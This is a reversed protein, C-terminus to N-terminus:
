DAQVLVERVAAEIKNKNLHNEEDHLLFTDMAAEGLTAIKAHQLRLNLKSFLCSLEALLGLRDRTKIEVQYFHEASRTVKVDTPTDFVDQHLGHRKQTPHPVDLHALTQTISQTISNLLDKNKITLHKHDLLIFYLLLHADGQRFLRAEAVNIGLAELTIACNALIYRADKLYVLLECQGHEPHLRTQVLAGEAQAAYLNRQYSIDGVSFYHFYDPAWFQTPLVAIRKAREDTDASDNFYHTTAQYLQELLTAKWGNWLDINTGRIDAVTLVYLHDLYQQSGIRKAFRKIVTPDAIDMKQATLSMTLHHEILWSILKIDERPLSHKKGFRKVAKAGWVSHDVGRGKGLDHFLAAVYLCYPQELNQMLHIALPLTDKHKGHKFERLQRIVQSTHKDVTHTHFLDFQMQGMIVEFDPLYRALIGYDMMRSLSHWISHPSKLIDVFLAQNAKNCRFDDDILDLHHSLSRLTRPHLNRHKAHQGVHYFVEFIASPRQTFLGPDLIDLQGNIMTFDDSVQEIHQPKDQTLQAEFISFMLECLNNLARTHLYFDQMFYEVAMKKHDDEYGLQEALTKQVDFRLRNEDKGSLQHLAIRVRGLFFVSERVTRYEKHTILHQNRLSSLDKQELAGIIIWRMTDFDRLGGPCEKINPELNRHQAEHRKLYEEQKANFFDKHPWLKAQKINAMLTDFQAADGCLVRGELLSTYFHVDTKADAQAEKVTRVSHGVKLGEDWLVQVLTAIAKENKKSPTLILLDIDSYPYLLGRGYGGTAIMTFGIDKPCHARIIKDVRGARQKLSKFTSRPTM